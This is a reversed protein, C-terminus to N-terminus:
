KKVKLKNNWQHFLDLIKNFLNLYEKEFNRQSFNDKGILHNFQFKEKQNLISSQHSIINKLIDIKEM